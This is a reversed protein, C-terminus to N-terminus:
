EEEVQLMSCLLHVCHRGCQDARDARGCSSCSLVVGGQLVTNCHSAPSRSFTPHSCIQLKKGLGVKILSLLLLLPRRDLM